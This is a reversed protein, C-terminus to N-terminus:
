PSEVKSETTMEMVLMTLLADPDNRSTKLTVDVALLRRYIKQIVALPFSRLQPLTKQVVFPHMGLTSALASQPTGADIALAMQLLIRFQRTLMALLYLPEAGAERERALLTLATRQQRQGIADTFAFIASEAQEIVVERVDAATITGSAGAILKGIEQHMRWLDNGVTAALLRVADREIVSKQKAVEAGIWREVEVDALPPFTEAYEQKILLARLAKNADATTATKKKTAKATAAKKAPARKKAQTSALDIGEWLILITDAPCANQEILDVVAQQADANGSEVLREVVVMRKPAFMSIASVASRIEGGSATAGNLAVLGSGTRDIERLFKEKMARLRARSRYTDAGHLVILM